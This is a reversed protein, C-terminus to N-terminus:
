EEILDIIVARNDTTYHFAATMYDESDSSFIVPKDLDFEMLTEILDSVKM